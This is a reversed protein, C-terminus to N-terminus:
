MPVLPRSPVLPLKYARAARLVAGHAGAFRTPGAEAHLGDDFPPAFPSFRGGSRARAELRHGHAPRTFFILQACAPSVPRRCRCGAPDCRACTRPSAESRQRPSLYVCDGGASSITQSKWGAIRVGLDTTQAPPMMAFLFRSTDLVSLLVNRAAVAYLQLRISFNRAGVSYAPCTQPERYPPVHRSEMAHTPFHIMSSPIADGNTASLESRRIRTCKWMRWYKSANATALRISILNTDSPGANRIKRTLIGNIISM